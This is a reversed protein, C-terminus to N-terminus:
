RDELLRFIASSRFILADMPPEQSEGVWAYADVFATKGTARTVKATGQLWEGSRASRLFETNLKITVSARKVERFVATAALGDAFSSIFGGHVISRSNCHRELLRVGQRFTDPNAWHFWPGNHTTFPGRRVSLRFPEPPQLAELDIESFESM